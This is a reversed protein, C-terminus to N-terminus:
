PPPWRDGKEPAVPDADVGRGLVVEGLSLTVGEELEPRHPIVLRSDSCSREWGGLASSRRMCGFTGLQGTRTPVDRAVRFIDTPTHEDRLQAIAVAASNTQLLAWSLPSRNDRRPERRGM